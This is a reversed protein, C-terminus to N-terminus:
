GAYRNSKSYNDFAWLPQLNALAWSQKFEGDETSSYKWWSDPIVHDVHWGEKGYNEWSMGDNFKSELHM